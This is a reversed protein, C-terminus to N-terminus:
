DVVGSSIRWEGASRGAVAYLRNPWTEGPVSAFWKDCVCFQSALYAYTPVDVANYYGMVLGPDPDGPHTAAYNQVFGGNKNQVQNAVCIGKHCPDQNASLKTSTLHHIGYSRGQYTNALGPTLGDIDKRKGELSLYGLMHDFSRNEMMLVVINEIKQLNVISPDPPVKFFPTQARRGHSPIAAGTQAYNGRQQVRQSAKSRSSADRKRIATTKTSPM